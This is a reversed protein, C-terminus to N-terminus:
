PKKLQVHEGDDISTFHKNAHGGFEFELMAMNAVDVLIEDNGTQQYRKLREIMNPVYDYLDSGIAKMKKRKVNWSEYRFCGMLLRNKMLHEFRYSWSQAKMEKLTQAGLPLPSELRNRIYDRILQDM